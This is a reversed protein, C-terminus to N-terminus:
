EKEKRGAHLEKFFNPVKRKAPLSAGPGNNQKQNHPQPNLRSSFRAPPRAEHERARARRRDFTTASGCLPSRPSAQHASNNVFAEPTVSWSEATRRNIKSKRMM